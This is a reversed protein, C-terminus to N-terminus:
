LHKWGNKDTIYWFYGHKLILIDVKNETVKKIEKDILM